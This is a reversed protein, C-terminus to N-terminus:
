QILKDIFIDHEELETLIQNWVYDLVDDYPTGKFDPGENDRLEEKAEFYRSASKKHNYVIQWLALAMDTSKVCRMHEIRDDPDTLDFKLIAKAM